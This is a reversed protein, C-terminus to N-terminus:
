EEEDLKLLTGTQEIKNIVAIMGNVVDFMNISKTPDNLIFKNKEYFEDCMIKILQKRTLSMEGGDLEKFNELLQIIQEGCTSEHEACHKCTQGLWEPHNDFLNIILQKINSPSM